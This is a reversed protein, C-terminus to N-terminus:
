LELGEIESELTINSDSDNLELSEIIEETNDLNLIEVTEDTPAEEDLNLSEITEVTEPAEKIMINETFNSNNKNNLMGTSLTHVLDSAIRFNKNEYIVINELESPDLDEICVLNQNKIESLIRKIIIKMQNWEDPRRVTQTVFTGLEKMIKVVYLKMYDRDDKEQLTYILYVNNKFRFYRVLYVSSIHENDYCINIKRM